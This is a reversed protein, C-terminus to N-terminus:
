DNKFQKVKNSCKIEANEYIIRKSTGYAHIHKYLVVHNYERKM